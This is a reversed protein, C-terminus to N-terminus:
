HCCDQRDRSLCIMGASLFKYTVALNAELCSLVMHRRLHHLPGLLLVQLVGLLVQDGEHAVIPPLDDYVAAEVGGLQDAHVQVM